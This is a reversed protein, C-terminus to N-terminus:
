RQISTGMDLLWNAWALTGGTLVAGGFAVFVGGKARTTGNWSGISSAIAWAIASVILMTVSVLLGYTLLAGVIGRLDSTGALAGLDPRVQQPPLITSMSVLHSAADRALFLGDPDRTM